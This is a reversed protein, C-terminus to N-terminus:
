TSSRREPITAVTGAPLNLSHTDRKSGIYLPENGSVISAGSYTWGASGSEFNGGSLLAYNASDGLKAFVPSAATTPCAAHAAAAPAFPVAFACLATLLPRRGPLPLPM